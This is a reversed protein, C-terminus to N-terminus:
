PKSLQCTQCCHIYTATNHCTEAVTFFLGFVTPEPGPRVERRGQCSPSLLSYVCHVASIQEMTQASFLSKNPSQIEQSALHAQTLTHILSLRFCLGFSYIFSCSLQDDKWRGTCVMVWRRIKVGWCFCLSGPEKRCLYLRYLVCLPQASQRLVCM